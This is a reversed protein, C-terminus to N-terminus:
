KTTKKQSPSEEFWQRLAAVLKPDDFPYETRETNVSTRFLIAAIAAATHAGLDCVEGSPCKRRLNFLPFVGSQLLKIDDFSGDAYELHIFTVPPQKMYNEFAM